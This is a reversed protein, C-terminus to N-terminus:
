ELNLAVTLQFQSIIDAHLAQTFSRKAIIQM